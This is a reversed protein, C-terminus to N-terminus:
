RSWDSDEFFPGSLKESQASSKGDNIIQSIARWQEPTLDSSGAGQSSTAHAAHATGRGRGANGGRGRGSGGRGRKENM